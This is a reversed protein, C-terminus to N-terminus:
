GTFTPAAQVAPAPQAPTRTVVSPAVETEDEPPQPGPPITETEAEHDNTFTCTVDDGDALTVTVGDDVDSVVADGCDIGELTFDEVLTEVITYDGPDLADFTSENAEEDSTLSFPGYETEGETLSFEFEWTEPADDGTVVKRVTLSASPEEESDPAQCGANWIEEGTPGGEYAVETWNQGVGGNAEHPPIIDGWEDGNFPPEYQDPDSFDFVPGVHHTHDNKKSGDISSAPVTNSTYPNTVANTRHCITVKDGPAASASAVLTLSAAAVMALAGAVATVRTRMTRM